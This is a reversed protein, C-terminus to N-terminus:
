QISRLYGLAAQADERTYFPGLRVSYQGDKREPYHWRLVQPIFPRLLAAANDATKEV